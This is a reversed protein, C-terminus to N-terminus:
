RRSETLAGSSRRASQPLSATPKLLVAPAAMSTGKLLAYRDAEGVLTCRLKVTMSGSATAPATLLLPRRLQDKVSSKSPRLRLNDISRYAVVSCRVGAQADAVGGDTEKGGAAVRGGPDALDGVLGPDRRCREVVV